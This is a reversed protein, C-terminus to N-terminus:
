KTEELAENIASQEPNIIRYAERFVRNIGLVDEFGWEGATPPESFDIHSDLNILIQKLKEVEALLEDNELVLLRNREKLEEETLIGKDASTESPSATTEPAQPLDVENLIETCHYYIAEMGFTTEKRENSYDQIFQLAEILKLKEM